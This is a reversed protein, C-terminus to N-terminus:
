SSWLSRLAFINMYEAYYTAVVLFLTSLLPFSSQMHPDPGATATYYLFHGM